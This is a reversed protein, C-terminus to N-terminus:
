RTEVDSFDIPDGSILMDALIAKGTAPDLALEALVHGKALAEELYWGKGQPVFYTEIGAILRRDEPAQKHGRLETRIYLQDGAPVDISISNVSFVDDGAALSIYVPTGPAEEKFIDMLQSTWEPAPLLNTELPSLSFDYRLHVFDGRLLDRPDVGQVHLRVRPFEDPISVQRYQPWWSVAIIAIWLLPILLWLGLKRMM